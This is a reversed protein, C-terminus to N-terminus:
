LEDEFERRWELKMMYAVSYYLIFMYTYKYNVALIIKEM